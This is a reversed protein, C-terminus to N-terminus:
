EATDSDTDETHATAKRKRKAALQEVFPPPAPRRPLGVAVLHEDIADHVHLEYDAASAACDVLAREAVGPNWGADPRLDCLWLEAQNACARASGAAKTREGSAKKTARTACARAFDAVAKPDSQVLEVLRARITVLHLHLGTLVPM